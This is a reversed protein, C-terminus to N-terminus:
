ADRSSRWRFTRLTLVLGGVAWVALILAIRGHEWTHAPEQAAFRDPLFVSRYGQAIWKLPFFAGVHQLWTPLGTFVFYVGSLFQLVLAIPTITAPAAKGSRPVSSFAIGLLSGAVTGIVTLWGFTVWKHWDSPLTVKGLASAIALLVAIELIVLAFIMVIKGFFYSAPPMPTGQLRKLIGKDREIAIQIAVTQFCVGFLGAAIIGPVFYQSFKIGGEINYNLVSGFIFLLIVPFAVTFVVSERQRFFEKVELKGREWGIRAVHLPGRGARVPVTSTSM